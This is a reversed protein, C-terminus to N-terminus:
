RWPERLWPRAPATEAPDKPVASARSESVPRPAHPWEREACADAERARSEVACAGWEDSLRLPSTDAPKTVPDGVEQSTVFGRKM